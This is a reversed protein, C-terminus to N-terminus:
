DITGNDEAKRYLGSREFVYPAGLTGWVGILLDRVLRWLVVEVPWKILWQLAIVGAIGIVVASVRRWWEPALELGLWREELVAGVGIGLLLMAYEASTTGTHVILMITPIAVAFTMRIKFAYQRYTWWQGIWWFLFAFLLGLIWGVIVDLPWHLGFYVRSFGICFVLVVVLVWFWAKRIWLGLLGWFTAGGQAHGSPLAYGSSTETYASHVGPIGIPRVVQFADKLWNCAYMSTLFSYALRLGFRKNIGWFIIPLALVYFRETGMITLIHLGKELWAAHWLQVYRILEYQWVYGQPMPFDPEM